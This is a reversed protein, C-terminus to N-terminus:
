ANIGVQFDEKYQTSQEQSFGFDQKDGGVSILFDHDSSFNNGKFYSRFSKQPKRQVLVRLYAFDKELLAFRGSRSFFVSKPAHRVQRNIM